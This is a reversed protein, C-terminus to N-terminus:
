VLTFRVIAGTKSPSRKVKNGKVAKRLPQWTGGRFLPALKHGHFRIESECRTLSLKDEKPAPM